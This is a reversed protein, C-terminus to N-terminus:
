GEGKGELFHMRGLGWRSSGTDEKRLVELRQLILSAEGMLAMVPFGRSYIHRPGQVLGHISDLQHSHRQSRGPTWTSQCQQDKLPAAREKLKKLEKPEKLEKLEKLGGLEEGVETWLSLILIYM